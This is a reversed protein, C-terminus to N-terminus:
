IYEEALQLERDYVEEVLFRENVVKDRQCYCYHKAVYCYLLLYVLIFFGRVGHFIFWPIDELIFTDLVNVVFYRLVFSAYWIGILSGKMRLPAQACIFELVTMFVLLYSLSRLFHPVLLWLLSASGDSCYYIRRYHFNQCTGDVDIKLGSFFATFFNVKQWSISGNCGHMSTDDWMGLAIMIGAVQQLLTVFMGFGLWTLMDPVFNKCYPILVYHLVPVLIVVTLTNLFSPSTMMWM